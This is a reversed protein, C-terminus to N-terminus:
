VTFFIFPVFFARTKKWSSVNVVTKNKIQLEQVLFLVVTHSNEMKSETNNANFNINKNFFACSGKSKLVYYNRDFNLNYFLWM